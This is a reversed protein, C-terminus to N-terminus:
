KQYFKSFKTIKPTARFAHCASHKLSMGSSCPVGSSSFLQCRLTDSNKPFDKLSFLRIQTTKQSKLTGKTTWKPSWPCCLFCCLPTQKTVKRPHPGPPNQPAKQASERHKKTGKQYNKPLKKPAKPLPAAPSAPYSHSLDLINKQTQKDSKKYKDLWHQAINAFATAQTPPSTPPSPGQVHKAFNRQQGEQNRCKSTNKKFQFASGTRM